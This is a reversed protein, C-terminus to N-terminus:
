KASKLITEIQEPTLGDLKALVDDDVQSLTQAIQKKRQEAARKDKVYQQIHPKLEDWNQHLLILNAVEELSLDAHKAIRTLKTHVNTDLRWTVRKDSNKLSLTSM